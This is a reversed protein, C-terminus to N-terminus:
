DEDEDDIEEIMEFEKEIDEEKLVELTILLDIMIDTIDQVEDLGPVYGAEILHKYIYNDMSRRDLFMKM